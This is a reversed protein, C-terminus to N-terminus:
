GGGADDLENAQVLDNREVAVDLLRQGGGPFPGSLLGAGSLHGVGARARPRQAQRMWRVPTAARGGVADGVLLAGATRGSRGAKAVCHCHNVAGPATAGCTVFAWTGPAFPHGLLPRRHATLRRSVPVAHSAEAPWGSVPRVGLAPWLRGKPPNVQPGAPRRSSLYINIGRRGPVVQASSTNRGPITIM